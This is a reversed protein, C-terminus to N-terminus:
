RPRLQLPRQHVLHGARSCGSVVGGPRSVAYPCLKRVSCSGWRPVPCLRVCRASSVVAKPSCEVAM